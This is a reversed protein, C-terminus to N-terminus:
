RKKRLTAITIGGVILLTITGMIFGPKSSKYNEVVGGYQSFLKKYTSRASEGGCDPCYASKLTPHPTHIGAFFADFDGVKAAELIRINQPRHLTDVFRKLGLDIGMFSAFKRPNGEAMWYDRTEDFVITNGVNNNWISSGGANELHIMALMGALEGSTPLRNNREFFVNTLMVRLDDMSYPTRIMQVQNGM